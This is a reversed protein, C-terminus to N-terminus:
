TTSVNYMAQRKLKKKKRASWVRVQSRTTTIFIVTLEGDCDNSIILFIYIIVIKIEGDSNLDM